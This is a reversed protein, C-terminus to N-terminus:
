IMRAHASHISGLAISALRAAPPDARSTLVIPIRGGLVVGAACAGMFYVMMKFLANGTEINPVILIDANGAVPHDLGKMRAADKSVANDFALPGYVDAGSVSEAAWNSLTDADASSPMQELVSETASLIAVKPREIGTAHALEIANLICAELTKIDPAINVAADSIILPRTSNSATMYFCHTLRRGTRVKAEPKLLAALLADSHVQGKVIIDASADAARQAAAAAIDADGAAEIIEFGAIDFGIQAAEEKIASERGVLVPDILGLACADAVSQMAVRHDAGVIVARASPLARARRLLDAPAEVPVTSLM